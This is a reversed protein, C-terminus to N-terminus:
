DEKFGPLKLLECMKIYKGNFVLCNEGDECNSFFPYDQSNRRFSKWRPLDKLAEEKGDHVGQQYKEDETLGEFRDAIKGENFWSQKYKEEFEKLVEAKGDAKAQSQLAASLRWYDHEVQDIIELEIQKRALELLEAAMKKATKDDIFVTCSMERGNGDKIHITLNDVVCVRVSQEYDTLEPEPTVIFLDACDEISSKSSCAKGDPFFQYAEEGGDDTILAIVCAGDDAKADTCILRASRGDRTEVKQSKDKLWAELTFPIKAM